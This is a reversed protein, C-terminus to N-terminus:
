DLACSVMDLESTITICVYKCGRNIMAEPHIGLVQRKISAEDNSSLAIHCWAPRCAIDTYIITHVSTMHQILAIEYNRLSYIIENM